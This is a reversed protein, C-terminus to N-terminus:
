SKGQQQWSCSDVILTEQHQKIMLSILASTNKGEVKILFIDVIDKNTSMQTNDVYIIISPKGSDISTVM